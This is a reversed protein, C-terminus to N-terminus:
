AAHGGAAVAAPTTSERALEAKWADMLATRLPYNDKQFYVNRCQIKALRLLMSVRQKTIGHKRAVMEYTKGATLEILMPYLRAWREAERQGRMRELSRDRMTLLKHRRRLVKAYQVSCKLRGAFEKITAAKSDAELIDEKSYKPRRGPGCGIKGNESFFPLSFSKLLNSIHAYSCGLREAMDKRTASTMRAAKIQEFTYRPM